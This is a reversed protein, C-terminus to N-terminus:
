KDKSLAVIFEQLKKNKYDSYIAADDIIAALLEILKNEAKKDM